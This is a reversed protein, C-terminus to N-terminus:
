AEESKELQEDDEDDDGEEGAKEDGKENRAVDRYRKHYLKLLYGYEDFGLV